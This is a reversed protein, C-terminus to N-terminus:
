ILPEHKMELDIRHSFYKVKKRLWEMNRPELYKFAKPVTRLRRSKHGGIDYDGAGRVTAKGSEKISVKLGWEEALRDAEQLREAPIIYGDTNVYVAGAREVMDAAFGHLCDQVFGWLVLNVNARHPRKQQFGVGPLWVNAGSPLGLSVLCNRALKIEPTPFDYVDSRPSIFRGPSYEVDWGGLMLLQWYASRLDLYYANTLTCPEAFLPQHKRVKVVEEWTRKNCRLRVGPFKVALYDKAIDSPTCWGGGFNYAHHRNIWKEGTTISTWAFSGLFTMGQLSELPPFKEVLHVQMGELKGRRVENMATLMESKTLSMKHRVKVSQWGRKM